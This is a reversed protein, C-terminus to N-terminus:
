AASLAKTEEPDVRVLIVLDNRQIVGLSNQAAGNQEWVGITDITKGDAQFLEGKWCIRKQPEMGPHAPESFEFSTLLHVLRSHRTQFWGRRCGGPVLNMGM